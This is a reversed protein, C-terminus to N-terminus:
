RGHSGDDGGDFLGQPPRELALMLRKAGVGGAYGGPGSVSVVRHCPVFVSVRNAAVASAVARVARPAGVARALESYSLTVGRPIGRLARWVALRFPSGWLLLPPPDVVRGTAFYGDLSAVARVVAEPASVDYPVVCGIRALEPAHRGEAWDCLVLRRGSAALLLTGAPTVYSYARGVANMICLRCM